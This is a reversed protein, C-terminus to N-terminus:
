IILFCNNLSWIKSPLKSYVTWEWIYWIIIQTYSKVVFVDLCFYNPQSSLSYDSYCCRQQVAMQRCFASSAKIPIGVLGGLSGFMHQRTKRAGLLLSFGKLNCSWTWVARFSPFIFIEEFNWLRITIWRLWLQTCQRVESDFARSRLEKLEKPISTFM